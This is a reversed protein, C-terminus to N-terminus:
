VALGVLQVVLESSGPALAAAHYSDTLQNAAAVSAASGDFLSMVARAQDTNSLGAALAFHAGITAKDAIYQADAVGGTVSKAGNIVALLFTSRDILGLTLENTWYAMGGADPARGLVNHYVADVFTQVSQGAPYQAVTEAQVAFSAAIQPLSMGGALRSAWYDLGVADPARDFYAVYIEILSAFRDQTLSAAATFWATDFAQDAFRLTEVGAVTDVGGTGVRDTLTVSDASVALTFNRSSAGVLLTDRGGGGAIANDGPTGILVDDGAGGSANEFEVVFGEIAGNPDSGDYDNWGAPLFSAHDENGEWNNPEGAAWATFDVVSGTRPGAVYRWVGESAADSIALWVPTQSAGLWAALATQETASDITLLHGAVGDLAQGAAQALAADFAAHPAAVYRYANGPSAGNGVFTSAAGSLTSVNGALDSAAATFLHRGAGLATALDFSFHGASDTGTTGLLVGDRYLTVSAGAEATGAVTPLGDPTRAPLHLVPAAPPTRDLTFTLESVGTRGYTDTQELIIVHVGDALGALATTWHGGTPIPIDQGDAKLRATSGDVFGVEHTLTPDRTVHDTGSLGTDGALSLPVAPGAGPRSTTEGIVLVGASSVSEPTGLGDLYRAVVTVVKGVLEQGLTLTAGTAGAIDAGNAQWQYSIVNMGDPDVLTNGVSLVHGPTTAGAINGDIRILAQGPWTYAGLTLPGISDLVGYGVAEPSSGTFNTIFYYNLAGSGPQVYSPSTSSTASVFLNPYTGYPTEVPLGIGSLFAQVLDPSTLDAELDRWGAVSAHIGFINALNAGVRGYATGLFESTSAYSLPTVVYTHGNIAFGLGPVYHFPADVTGIASDQLTVTVAGTPPNSPSLKAIAPFNAAWQAATFSLSAPPADAVTISALHGDLAYQTLTDLNALINAAKDVIDFQVTGGLGLLGQTVPRVAEAITVHDIILHFPSDIAALVSHAQHSRAWMQFESLSFHVTPDADTFAIRGFAIEDIREPRHGFMGLGFQQYSVADVLGRDFNAASDVIHLGTVAINTSIVDIAQAFTLADSITYTPEVGTPFGSPGPSFTPHVMSLIGRNALFQEYTLSVLGDALVVGITQDAAVM